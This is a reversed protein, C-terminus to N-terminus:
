VAHWSKMGYEHSQNKSNYCFTNQLGLVLSDVSQPWSYWNILHKFCLNLRHCCYNIYIVHLAYVKICRHVVSTKGSMFNTGHVCTFSDEDKLIEAFAALAIESTRPSVKLLATFDKFDKKSLEDFSSM